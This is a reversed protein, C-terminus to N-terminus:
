FGASIMLMWSVEDKKEFKIDNYGTPLPKGEEIGAALVRTRHWVPGFGINITETGSPKDDLAPRRSIWTPGLSIADFMRSDSGSGFARIGAYFGWGSRAHGQDKILGFMDRFAYTTTLWLSPQYSQSDTIRVIRDTGVSEAESVYKSKFHEFGIAVGLRLRNVLDSLTDKDQNGNDALASGVMMISLTIAAIKQKM